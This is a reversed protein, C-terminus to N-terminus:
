RIRVHEVRKEGETLSIGTGYYRRERMYSVKIKVPYTGDQKPNRKELYIAASARQEM